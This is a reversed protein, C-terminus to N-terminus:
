VEVAGLARLVAGLGVDDPDVGAVEVLVTLRREALRAVPHGAEDVAVRRRQELVLHRRLVVEDFGAVAEIGRPDRLLERLHWVLLEDLVVVDPDAGRLVDHPPDFRRALEALADGLDADRDVRATRWM